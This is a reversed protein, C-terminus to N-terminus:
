LKAYNWLFILKPSLLLLFLLKIVPQSPTSMIQLHWDPCTCANIWLMKRVAIKVGMQSAKGEFSRLWHHSSASLRYWNHRTGNSVSVGIVCLCMLEIPFLHAFSCWLSCVGSSSMTERSNSWLELAWVQLYHDRLIILM